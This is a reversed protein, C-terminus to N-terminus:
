KPGEKEWVNDKDKYKFKKDIVPMLNTSVFKANKAYFLMYEHMKGVFGYDRANPTSKVIFIGLNNYEGFIEDCLLKINAQENDDISILIVGNESLLEHAKKLRSEM